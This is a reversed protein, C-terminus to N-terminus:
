KDNWPKYGTMEGLIRIVILFVFSNLITNVLFGEVSSIAYPQFEGVFVLLYGFIIPQMICICAISFLGWEIVNKM